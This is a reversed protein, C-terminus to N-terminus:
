KWMERIIQMVIYVGIWILLFVFLLSLAGYAIALMSM